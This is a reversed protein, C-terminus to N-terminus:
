SRNNDPLLRIRRDPQAPQPDAQVLRVLERGDILEIPKDVAWRRAADSIRGTTVLYARSAGAHMMTGYLDRVTSEGVVGAYRKCQVVALGGSGDEVLVDIGGDKVDPTNHVRYGQRAFLRQAVYEEFQSPTLAQIRELSMARHSGPWMRLRLAWRPSIIRWGVALALGGVLCIAILARNLPNSWHAGAQWLRWSLWAYLALWALSSLLLLATRLNTQAPARWRPPDFAFIRQSM